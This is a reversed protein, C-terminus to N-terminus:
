YSTAAYADLVYFGTGGTATGGFVIKNVDYPCPVIQEIVGTSTHGSKAAVASHRNWTGGGDYSILIEGNAFTAVFIHRHLMQIDTVASSASSLPHRIETWASPNSPEITCYLLGTVTGVIFKNDTAPIGATLDDAGIASGTTVVEELEGGMYSVVTANDGVLLADNSKIRFGVHRLDGTTQVGAYIEDFGKAPDSLVGIFGSEGVVIGKSVGTGMATLVTLAPVDTNGVETPAVDNYIDEKNSFITQWTPSNVFTYVANNLWGIGIPAFGPATGEWVPTSLQWTRSADKSYVMEGISSLGFLNTCGDSPNDCDAGCNQNDAYTLGVFDDLATIVPTNRNAYTLPVVETYGGITIDITEMITERDASQLASLADTGYSTVYVNEFILMKDFANFDNPKQCLGFHIHMDFGCGRVAFNRFLSLENRSLRTSLTTTMRGIEGSVNGVEIFKGYNYPDPCEVRTVDGFDQSLADVGLCPFYSYTPQCVDIGNKFLFARSLDNRAINTSM